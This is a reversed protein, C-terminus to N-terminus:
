FSIVSSSYDDKVIKSFYERYENTPIKNKKKKKKNEPKNNEPASNKDTDIGCLYDLCIGMFGARDRGFTSHYIVPYNNPNALVKIANGFSPALSYEGTLEISIWNSVGGTYEYPSPNRYYNKLNLPNDSGEGIGRLDLDTKIGLNNKIENVAESTAHELKASRYVLGEKITEGTLNTIGGMDRVNEVGDIFIDEPIEENSQPDRKLQPNKSVEAKLDDSGLIAATRDPMLTDNLIVMPIHEQDKSAPTLKNIYEYFKMNLAAVFNVRGHYDSADKNGMLRFFPYEFNNQIIVRFNNIM